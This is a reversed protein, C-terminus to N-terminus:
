SPAIRNDSIFRQLWKVGRLHSGAIDDTDPQMGSIRQAAVFDALERTGASGVDDEATDVRREVRVLRAVQAACM